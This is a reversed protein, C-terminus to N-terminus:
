GSTNSLDKSSALWGSAVSDSAYLMRGSGLTYYFLFSMCCSKYYTEMYEMLDRLELM